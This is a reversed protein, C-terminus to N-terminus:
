VRVGAIGGGAVLAAGRPGRPTRAINVGVGAGRESGGVSATAVNSSEGDDPAAADVNIDEMPPLSPVADDDGEGGESVKDGQEGDSADM